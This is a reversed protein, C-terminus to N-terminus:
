ANAMAQTLQMRQAALDKDLTKGDLGCKSIAPISLNAYKAYRGKTTGYHLLNAAIVVDVYDAKDTGTERMVTEHWRAMQVLEDTMQWHKLLLGGVVPHLVLEFQLRELKTLKEQTLLFDRLPLKGIDHLLGGLSALEADLHGTNKAISHCLASIHLGSAVFGHLRTRDKSARMTQLISLQTVLSRVLNFGLSSIAQKVGTVPRGRQLASSNAVKILRATITADKIVEAALCNVSCDPDAVLTRVKIAVEPLSPLILRNSKIDDEIVKLLNQARERM